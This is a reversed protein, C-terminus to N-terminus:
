FSGAPEPEEPPEEGTALFILNTGVRGYADRTARLEAAAKPLGAAAMRAAVEEHERGWQLAADAVLLMCRRDVCSLESTNLGRDGSAVERIKGKQEVVEM